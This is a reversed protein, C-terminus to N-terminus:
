KQTQKRIFTGILILISSGVGDFFLYFAMEFPFLNHNTPDEQTDIILKVMFAIMHSVLAIGLKEIFKLDTILALILAGLLCSGISFYTYVSSLSYTAYDTIWWPIGSALIIFLGGVLM